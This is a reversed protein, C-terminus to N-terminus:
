SRVPASHPGEHEFVEGLNRMDVMHGCEACKYYHRAEDAPDAGILVGAAIMPPFARAVRTM